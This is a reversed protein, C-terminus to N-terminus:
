ILRRMGRKTESIKRRTESIKRRTEESLPKGYQPNGAGSLGTATCAISCFRRGSKGQFLAGCRECM